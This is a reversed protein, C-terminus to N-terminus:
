LGRAFCYGGVLIDPTELVAAAGFFGSFKYTDGGSLGAFINASPAFTGGLYDGMAANLVGDVYSAGRDLANNEGFLKKDALALADAIVNGAISFTNAGTDIGQSLASLPDARFKDWGVDIGWNSGIAVTGGYGFTVQDVNEIHGFGNLKQSGPSQFVLKKGYSSDVFNKVKLVNEFLQVEVSSGHIARLQDQLDSALKTVGEAASYTVQKVASSITYYHGALSVQREYGVEFITGDTLADNDLVISWEGNGSSVTHNFATTDEQFIVYSGEAKDVFNTVNLMSGQAGAGSALAVEVTDSLLNQLAAKVARAFAAKDGTYTVVGLEDLHSSGNHFGVQYSKGSVLHELSIGWSGVSAKSAVVSAFNSTDKQFLLQNNDARDAANTILIQTDSAGSTVTAASYGVERLKAQIAARFTAMDGAYTVSKLTEASQRLDVGAPFATLPKRFGVQFADNVNLDGLAITWSTSEGTVTHPYGSDRNIERLSSYNFNSSPASLDNKYVLQNSVTIAPLKGHAVDDFIKYYDALSSFGSSVASFVSKTPQLVLTFGTDPSKFGTVSIFRAANIASYNSLSAFLKDTGTEEISISAGATDQKGTAVLKGSIIQWDINPTQLKLQNILTEFTQADSGLISVPVITNGVSITASYTTTGTLATSTTAKVEGTFAISQGQADFAVKKTALILKFNAADKFGTVGIFRAASIASYNSLSTFLKKTGTDEISISAGATGQKGIAVLKGGIVQWDVNPTATKLATILASFTGADNGNIAIDTSVTGVSLRATYSTDALLKTETAATVGDTFAISQGQTDFAVAGTQMGELEDTVATIFAAMDGAYSVVATQGGAGSFGVTYDGSYLGTNQIDAWWNTGEGVVEHSGAKMKNLEATVATTFAQVDGEYKVVATESGSGGVGVSYDGSHLPTTEIDAWWHGEGDGVIKHNTFFGSPMGVTLGEGGILSGAFEVGHKIVFTNQNRGAFVTANADLNTFKLANRENAGDGIIPLEEIFSLGVNGPQTVTLSISGDAEKAFAFKLAKSVNRFDIVLASEASVLSTDITLTRDTNVLAALGSGITGAAAEILDNLAGASPGWDNGFIFTNGGQSATIRDIYQFQQQNVLVSNTPNSVISGAVQSAGEAASWDSETLITGGSKKGGTLANQGAQLASSITGTAGIYNNESIVHVMGADIQRYDIHDGLSGTSENEVDSDKPDLPNFRGNAKPGVERITDHGWDGEFSYTDSGRGGSVQDDGAGAFVVDGGSGLKITDSGDSGFVVLGGAASELSLDGSSGVGRSYVDGGGFSSGIIGVAPDLNDGRKVSINHQLQADDDVFSGISYTFQQGANSILSKGDAGIIEHILVGHTSVSALTSGVGAVPDALATDAKQLQLGTLLGADSFPLQVTVRLKDDSFEVSVPPSGSFLINLALQLDDEFQVRSLAADAGVPQSYVVPRSEGGKSFTFTDTDSLTSPDLAFSLTEKELSHGYFLGTAYNLYGTSLDAVQINIEKAAGAFGKFAYGEHVVPTAASTVLPTAPTIFKATGPRMSKFLKNASGSGDKLEVSSTSTSTASKVNLSGNEISWTVGHTSNNLATVLASFSNDWSNIAVSIEQFSDAGDVKIFAQYNKTSAAGGFTGSPVLGTQTAGTIVVQSFKNSDPNDFRVSLKDAGDLAALQSYDLTNRTTSDSNASANLQGILARDSKVIIHNAGKGLTLDKIGFAEWKFTQDTTLFGGPKTATVTVHGNSELVFTLDQTVTSFDFHSLEQADEVGLAVSQNESDAPWAFDLVRYTHAKDSPTKIVEIYGASVVREAGSSGTQIQQAVSAVWGTPTLTVVMPMDGTSESLDITDNGANNTEVIQENRWTDGMIRYSDSGAGGDTTSLEAAPPATARSIIVVDDGKGTKVTTQASTLTVNDGLPGGVFDTLKLHQVLETVGAIKHGTVQPSVTGVEDLYQLKLKTSTGLDLSTLQSDRAMLLALAQNGAANITKISGEHVTVSILPGSALWAQAVGASNIEENTTTVANVPKTKSNKKGVAIVINTNNGSVDLTEITAGSKISISANSNAKLVGLTQDGESFRVTASNGGQTVQLEAKNDYTSLVVTVDPGLSSIDITTADSSAPDTGDMPAIIGGNLLAATLVLTDNTIGREVPDVLLGGFVPDNSAFALQETSMFDLTETIYGSETELIWDGGIFRNGTLNDSAAIDADTVGALRDVFSIGVEGQSVDCGYLLIDGDANLARGWVELQQRYRELTSGDLRASGLRVAGVSGHSLVHLASIDDYRSIIDTLQDIGDAQADLLVVTVKGAKVSVEALQDITEDTGNLADADDLANNDAGNWEALMVEGGATEESVWDLESAADGMFTTLLAQYDEVSRDVVLFQHGNLQQVFRIGVIEDATLPAVVEEGSPKVEELLLGEEIQADTLASVLKLDVDTSGQDNAALDNEHQRVLTLDKSSSDEALGTEVLQEVILSDNLLEASLSFPAADASLLFRNEMQEVLFTNRRKASVARYNWFFQRLNKLKAYRSQMVRYLLQPM